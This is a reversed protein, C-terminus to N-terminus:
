NAKSKKYQMPLRVILRPLEGSSSQYNADGQLFYILAKALALEVGPGEQLKFRYRTGNWFDRLLYMREGNSSSNSLIILLKPHKTEEDLSVDVRITEGKKASQVVGFILADIVQRVRQVDSNMDTFLTKASCTFVFAIGQDLAQKQHIRVLDRVLMRISFSSCVIQIQALELRHLDFFSNITRVLDLSSERIIKTTFSVMPESSNSEVFESYGVIGTLSTRLEHSLREMLDSQNRLFVCKCRFTRSFWNKICSFYYRM